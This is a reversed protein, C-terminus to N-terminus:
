VKVHDGGAAWLQAMSIDTVACDCLCSITLSYLTWLTKTTYLIQWCQEFTLSWRCAPAVTDCWRLVLYYYHHIGGACWLCWVIGYYTHASGKCGCLLILLLWNQMCEYMPYQTHSATCVSLGSTLAISYVTYHTVKSLMLNPSIARHQYQHSKFRAIQVSLIMPVCANNFQCAELKIIRDKGLASFRLFYEAICHWLLTVPQQYFLKPWWSLSCMCSHFQLLHLLCWTIDASSETSIISEM